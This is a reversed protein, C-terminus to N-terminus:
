WFSLIERGDFLETLVAGGWGSSSSGLELLNKDSKKFTLGFSGSFIYSLFSESAFFLALLTVLFPSSNSIFSTSESTSM